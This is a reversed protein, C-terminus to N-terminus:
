RAQVTMTLRADLGAEQQGQDGASFQMRVVTSAIYDARVLKGENTNFFETSTVRHTMEPVSVSVQGGEPGFGMQDLRVTSQTHGSIKALALGGESTFSDLTRSSTVTVPLTPGFPFVSVSRRWTEGVEVPHDPFLPEGLNDLNPAGLGPAMQQM